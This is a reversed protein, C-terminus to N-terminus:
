LSRSLESVKEIARSKWSMHISRCILSQILNARIKRRDVMIAATAERHLLDFIRAGLEIWEQFTRNGCLWALSRSLSDMPLLCALLCVDMAM